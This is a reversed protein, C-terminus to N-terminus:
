ERLHPLVHLLVDLFSAGFIKSRDPSWGCEPMPNDNADKFPMELTFAPCDHRFCMSAAGLALNASGPAEPGYDHEVQFDPNISMWYGKVMGELRQLREGWRPNGMMSTLFNHPIAEDGHVDLFFDCGQKITEQTIYYCEPSRELTPAQYDGTPGWERNLNSGIANTRLHGRFSGDPNVNPILFVTAELLIKAAVPDSPNLLRDLLGDMFWEAMVEGPHQRAQIWIKRPGHGVTILDIDRGDLSKGLSRVHTNPVMMCRAILDLHMEHSYPAFYAFYIVNHACNKSWNLAGNEYSTPIRFWDKRDYSAVVNYGPWGDPFTTEGANAITFKVTRGNKVGSVRFYFWQKFSVNELQSHPEDEIKVIVYDDGVAVLKGNGADFDSSVTM